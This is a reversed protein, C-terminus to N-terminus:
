SRSFSASFRQKCSREFLWSKDKLDSANGLLPLGRPGPPVRRWPSRAYRIAVITAAPCLVALGIRTTVLEWVRDPALHHFSFSLTYLLVAWVLCPIPRLGSTPSNGGM